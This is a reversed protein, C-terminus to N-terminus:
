PPAHCLYFMNEKLDISHQRLLKAVLARITELVVRRGEILSVVMGIHLLIPQDPEPGHGKSDRSDEEQNRRQNLEIKKKKGDKSRYYAVSRQTSKERRRAERCGFPCGLDNRGKNRPHTFFLIGCHRCHTLCSKLEPKQRIVLRITWYYRAVFPRVEGDRYWHPTYRFFFQMKIIFFSYRRKYRKDFWCARRTDSDWFGQYLSPM